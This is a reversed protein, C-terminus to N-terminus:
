WTLKLVPSSLTGFPLFDTSASRALTCIQRASSQSAEFPARVSLFAGRQKTDAPLGPLRQVCSSGLGLVAMDCGNEISAKLLM